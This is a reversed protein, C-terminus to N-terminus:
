SKARSLRKTSKKLNIMLSKEIWESLAEKNKLISDPVKWYSMSVPKGSAGIYTFPESKAAEYEKMNTADVKFYISGQAIIGFIVGQKYLGHGGFMARSKIGPLNKFFRDFEKM